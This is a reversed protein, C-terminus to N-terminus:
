DYLEFNLGQGYVMKTHTSTRRRFENNVTSHKIYITGAIERNSIRLAIRKEVLFEQIFHLHQGKQIITINYHQM